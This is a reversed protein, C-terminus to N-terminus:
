SDTIVSMKDPMYATILATIDCVINLYKYEGDNDTKPEAQIQDVTFSVCIKCEDTVSEAEVIENFPLNYSACVCSNDGEACYIVKVM